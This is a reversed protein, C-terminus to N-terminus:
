AESGVSHLKLNKSVAAKSPALAKYLDIYMIIDQMLALDTGLAENLAVHLKINQVLLLDAGQAEISAIYFHIYM